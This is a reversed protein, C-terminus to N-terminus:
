MIVDPHHGDNTLHFPYEQIKDNLWQLSFYEYEVICRHLFLALYNACIGECLTYMGDVIIQSCVCFQPISFFPSTNNVGFERSWFRKTAKTLTPDEVVRCQELHRHM